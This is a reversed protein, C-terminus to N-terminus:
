HINITDCDGAGEFVFRTPTPVTCHHLPLPLPNVVTNADQQTRERSSGRCSEHAYHLLLSFLVGPNSVAEKFSCIRSIEVMVPLKGIERRELPLQAATQDAFRCLIM